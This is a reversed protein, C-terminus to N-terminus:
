WEPLVGFEAFEFHGILRQESAESGMADALADRYPQGPLGTFGYGFGVMQRTQEGLAACLRFGERAAHETLMATFGPGALLPLYFMQLHVRVVDDLRATVQQPFLDAISVQM